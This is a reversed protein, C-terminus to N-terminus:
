WLLLRANRAERTREGQSQEVIVNSKKAWLKGTGTVSKSNEFEWLEEVTATVPKFKKSM